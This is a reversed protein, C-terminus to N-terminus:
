YSSIKKIILNKRYPCKYVKIQKKKNKFFEKYALYAGPFPPDKLDPIIDDCYIMGNISLKDWCHSLIAKHGSYLDVDLNIFSIKKIRKILEQLKVEVYGKVLEVNKFNKKYIHINLVKQIFKKNYPLKLNPSYAWEGLQIKRYSSDKDSIFNFGSFSDMSIFFKELKLEQMLYCIAITSRGRGTGFELISGEVSKTKELYKKISEFYKINNSNFLHYYDNLDKPHKQYYRINLIKQNNIFKTKRM